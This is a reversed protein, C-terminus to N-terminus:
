GTFLVLYTGPFSTMFQLYFLRILFNSSRRIIPISIGTAGEVYSWSVFVQKIIEAVALTAIAFYHGKLRFCPYSMVAAVASAILGGLIMGLWPTVGYRYFMVASTYAGIGFLAAHGFPSGPM